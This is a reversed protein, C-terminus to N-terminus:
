ITTLRVVSSFIEDFDVGSKQAYGKVVLHVKFREVNRDTDKKM